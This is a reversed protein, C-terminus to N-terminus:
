RGASPIGGPRQSRLRYGAGRVTEILGDRRGADVKRRLSRIYVEVINSGGAYDADWVGDLLQEQSFIRDPHRALHELLAYEKATLRLSAGGCRAVLRTPDLELDAVRVLPHRAGTARRRLARTRALLETMAFPKTLYDDAGRDLGEVRQEVEDRATVILIAASSGRDRLRRCVTFGDLGPLVVDLLILDYGYAAEWDLAAAGDGVVDVAWGDRALAARVAEAVAAEDEVILARV